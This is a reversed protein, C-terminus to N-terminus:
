ADEKELQAVNACTYGFAILTPNILMELVDHLNLDDDPLSLCVIPYKMNPKQASQNITPELTIKM